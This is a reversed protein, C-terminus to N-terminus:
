AVDINVSSHHKNLFNLRGRKRPPPSEPLWSLSKGQGEGGGRSIHTYKNVGLVFSALCDWLSVGKQEGTAKVCCFLHNSM